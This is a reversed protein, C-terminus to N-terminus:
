KKPHPPAINQMTNGNLLYIAIWDFDTFLFLWEGPGKDHESFTSTDALHKSM